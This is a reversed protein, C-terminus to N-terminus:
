FLEFSAKRLDGPWFHSRRGPKSREKYLIHADSKLFHKSEFRAVDDCPEVIPTGCPKSLGHRSLRDIEIM